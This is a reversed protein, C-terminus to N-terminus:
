DFTILPAEEVQPKPVEPHPQQMQLQVAAPPLSTGVQPLAATIAQMNYAPGAYVPQGLHLPISANHPLHALYAAPINSMQSLLTAPHLHPPLHAANAPLQSSPPANQPQPVPIPTGVAPTVNTPFAHQSAVTPPMSSSIQSTMVSSNIPQSAAALSQPVSSANVAFGAASQDAVSQASSAYHHQQPPQQQSASVQQMYAQHQMPDIYGVYSGTPAASSAPYAYGAGNYMPLQGANASNAATMWQGYNQSQLMQLAMQQQFNISDNKKKRMIQLKMAIQQQRERDEQEAKQRMKENHDERLSDLAARSDKVQALKDQLLEYHGRQENVENIYRVLQPHLNSINLFMSQVGTDSTILRNRNRNSNMRNVFMEIASKLTSRFQELEEEPESSETEGNATSFGSKIMVEETKVTANTTPRSLTGSNPHQTPASPEGSKM